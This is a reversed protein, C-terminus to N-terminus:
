GITMFGYFTPINVTMSQVVNLTALNILENITAILDFVLCCFIARALPVRKCQVFILPLLLQMHISSRNDYM